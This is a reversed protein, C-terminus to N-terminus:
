CFIHFNFRKDLAVQNTKLLALAARFIMQIGDLFMLDWVRLTIELPLSNVFLCLFWNVVVMNLPIDLEMLHASVEPLLEVVM